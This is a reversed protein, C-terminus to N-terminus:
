GGGSVEWLARRMAAAEERAADLWPKESTRHAYLIARASNVVAGVRDTGFLGQLDSATAGQAGYGPILFPVEPIRQRLQRAQSPHTGGVVAGVASWGRGGRSERAWHQVLDGVAEYVLRGDGLVLDQLDSSSPNSTKVLVFLGKGQNRTRQLFPEMGDTGFYPNVTLADAGMVDLHARAYAEATNGIDGRKADAIVLYGLRQAEGVAEEFLRMGEWGLAEFFAAQIKVAVAEETLVELLPFIFRRYAECTAETSPADSGWSETIERPLLSYNPDLGVVVHSRKELIAAALRDCFMNSM